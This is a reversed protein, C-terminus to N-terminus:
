LLTVLGTHCGIHRVAAAYLRAPFAVDHVSLMGRHPQGRGLRLHCLDM